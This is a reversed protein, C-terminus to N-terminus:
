LGAFTIQVFEETEGSGRKWRWKEVAAVGAQILVPNGGLAQISAVSGDAAVKVRLRVSGSLRVRRAVEPYTPEARRVVPRANMAQQTQQALARAHFFTPVFTCMLAFIVISRLDLPRRSRLPPWAERGVRSGDSCESISCNTMKRLVLLGM